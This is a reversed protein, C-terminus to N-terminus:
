LETSGSDGQRPESPMSVSKRNHRFRWYFLIAVIIIVPILIFILYKVLLTTVIAMAGLIIGIVFYMADFHVGALFMTLALLTLIFVGGVLFSIIGSHVVVSVIYVALMLGVWHLIEHWITVGRVEHNRSVLWTLWICLIAFLPIVYIWYNWAFNPAFDTVLVGFASLVLLILSVVMRAKMHSERTRIIGKNNLADIIKNMAM